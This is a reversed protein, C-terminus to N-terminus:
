TFIRSSPAQYFVPYRSRDVNECRKISEHESAVQVSCCTWSQFWLNLEELSKILRIAHRDWIMRWIGSTLFIFFIIACVLHWSRSTGLGHFECSLLKIPNGSYLFNSTGWFKTQASFDFSKILEKSYFDVFDLLITWNLNVM